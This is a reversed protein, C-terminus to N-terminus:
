KLYAAVPIGQDRLAKAVVGAIQRAGAPEFHTHDNCFFAGVPGSNYDGNFPCLGLSNYLTYSLRHLDIVPVGNASAASNTETIFGRNGVATGGSCTIAAVPTLFIPHAGRATAANAMMALLQQYRASGVHRPCTSTADNIGFQIFLYDGAKMGNASDLMAQWRASYTVPNIVCEGTSNMSSSVNPDYLWTQISRGGMASNRVTVNSNFYQAFQNGWGAPCIAGGSPDAMTSDGALWITLRAPSPSPSASPPACPSPNPTPSGTGNVDVEVYDINTLGNATTPTLRITNSGSRVSVTLVTTVWTSWAGTPNFAAAAQVVVGNVLVDAPRNTTTGNAHRIALTATASTSATVTFQAAAGVANDGNCFGTGSYGAHNSDITGACTAPAVEAEYRAPAAATAISTHMLTLAAALATASAAAILLRSKM